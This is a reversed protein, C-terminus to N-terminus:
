GGTPSPAQPARWPEVLILAGLWPSDFYEIRGFQIPRSQRLRHVEFDATGAFAGTAAQARSESWVLHLEAHRFQRQRIRVSGDLRYISPPAQDPLTVGSGLSLNQSNPRIWDISIPKDDRVRVAPATRRRDLPQLWTTVSLVEYSASGRLRDLARQMNPSLQEDHVYREPWVPGRGDHALPAPIIAPTTPGSNEEADNGIGPVGVPRASWAALRARERPDMLASFNDLQDVPWRDSQGSNHKFVLVEVRVLDEAVAPQLPLLILLLLAIASVPKM